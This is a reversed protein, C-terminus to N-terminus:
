PPTAGLLQNVLANTRTAGQQIQNISKGSLLLDEYTPQKVGQLMDRFPGRYVDKLANRSDVMTRAITEESTGAARM